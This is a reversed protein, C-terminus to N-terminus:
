QCREQALGEEAGRTIWACEENEPTESLSVIFQCGLLGDADWDASASVAAYMTGAHDLIKKARNKFAIQQWFPHMTRDLGAM